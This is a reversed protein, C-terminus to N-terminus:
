GALSKVLRNEQSEPARVSMLNSGKDRQQKYQMKMDHLSEGVLPGLPQVGMRM